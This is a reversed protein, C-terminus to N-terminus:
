AFDREPKSLIAVLMKKLLLLEKRWAAGDKLYTAFGRLAALTIRRAASIQAQPLNRDAFIDSWRRDMEKEFARMTGSLMPQLEPDSRAGLWLHFVAQAQKHQYLAWFHNIIADVSTELSARKPVELKNLYDPSFDSILALLLEARTGFHHQVAGRSVGARQAVRALTLDFFGTECILDIAASLLLQRTQTSREAQTRRRRARAPRRKRQKQPYVELSEMPTM